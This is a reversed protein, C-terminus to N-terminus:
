DVIRIIVPLNKIKKAKNDTYKVFVLSLAFLLIGGIVSVLTSNLGIKGALMYGGIAGVAAALLPLVAVIFTAKMMNEDKIEFAVKQGVVAGVSNYTEVTSANDGACAGCNECDGHKSTRVTAIDGNTAIVIGEELQSMINEKKYLLGLGYCYLLILPKIFYPVTLKEDNKISKLGIGM